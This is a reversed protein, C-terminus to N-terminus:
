PFYGRDYRVGICTIGRDLRAVAALLRVAAFPYRASCEAEVLYVDFRRYRRVAGGSVADIVLGELDLDAADQADIVSGDLALITDAQRVVRVRVPRPVLKVEFGASEGPVLTIQRSQLRTVALDLGTKVAAQGGLNQQFSTVQRQRMSVLDALMMALPTLAALAVLVLILSAGREDARRV